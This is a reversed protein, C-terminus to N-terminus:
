ILGTAVRRNLTIKKMKGSNADIRLGSGYSVKTLRDAILGMGVSELAEKIFREESAFVKFGMHQTSYVYISNGRQFLWLYKPKKLHFMACAFSGMLRSSAKYIAESINYKEERAFHDILHFIVESDVEGKRRLPDGAQRWLMEDNSIIGNHVGIIFGSHIPHNNFNNKFTGKTQARTHGIVIRTKESVFEKKWEKYGVDDVFNRGPIPKKLMSAKFDKTVAAVGASHSGRSTSEYVLKDLVSSLTEVVDKPGFGVANDVVLGYIGCM